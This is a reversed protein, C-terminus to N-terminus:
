SKKDYHNLLNAFEGALAKRSYKEIEQSKNSPLGTEMYQQYYKKITEKMKEKDDFGVTQGAHTENIIRAADGDEPGICLIPRGSALYEFLKGTLLGKARPENDPMLLLLLLASARHAASVESHPIYPSFCVHDTLGQKSISEVVSKDIQGIMNIKLDHAFDKNEKVM